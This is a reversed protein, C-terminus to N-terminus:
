ENGQEGQKRTEKNHKNKKVNEKTIPLREVIEAKAIEWPRYNWVTSGILVDVWPEMGPADVILRAAAVVEGVAGIRKEDHRDGIVVVLEGLRADYTNRTETTGDTM